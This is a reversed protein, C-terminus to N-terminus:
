LWDQLFDSLLKSSKAAVDLKVSDIKTTVYDKVHEVLEEVKAFIQEM